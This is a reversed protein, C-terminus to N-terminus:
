KCAAGSGAALSCVQHLATNSSDPDRYNVLAPASSLAARIRGAKGLAAYKLLKPGDVSEAERRRQKHKHKKKSRHKGM